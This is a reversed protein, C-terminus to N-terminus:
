PNYLAANEVRMFVKTLIRYGKEGEIVVTLINHNPGEFFQVKKIGYAVVNHGADNVDRLINGGNLYYRIRRYTEFNDEASPVMMEITNNPHSNPGPPGIDYSQSTRFERTIHSVAIMVNQREDINELGRDWISYGIATVQYLGAMFLALITSAVILEILTFGKECKREMKIQKMLYLHCALLKNHVILTM